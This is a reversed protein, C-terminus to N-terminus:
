LNDGRSPKSIEDLSRGLDGRIGELLLMVALKDIVLKKMEEFVEMPKKWCFNSDRAEITFDFNRGNINFRCVFCTGRWKPEKQVFWNVKLVNDTTFNRDLINKLVKDQMENLLKISADTPAKEETIRVTKEYPVYETDSIHYSNFM